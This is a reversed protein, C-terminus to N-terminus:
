DLTLLSEVKLDLRPIGVVIGSNGNQHLVKSAVIVNPNSTNIIELARKNPKDGLRAWMYAEGSDLKRHFQSTLWHWEYQPFLEILREYRVPPSSKPARDLKKYPVLLSNNVLWHRMMSETILSRKLDHLIRNVAKLTKQVTGQAKFINEILLKENLENLIDSGRIKRM